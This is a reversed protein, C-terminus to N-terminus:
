NEFGLRELIRRHRGAVTRDVEILDEMRKIGHVVTSHARGLARGIRVRTMGLERAFLYMIMERAESVDSLRNHEWIEAMTVGYEDAVADIIDKGTM